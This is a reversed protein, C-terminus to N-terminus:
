SASPRTLSEGCHGVAGSRHLRRASTECGKGSEQCAARLRSLPQTTLGSPRAYGLSGLRATDFCASGLPEYSRRALDRRGPRSLSACPVHLAPRRVLGVLAMGDTDSGVSWADRTPDVARVGRANMHRRTWTTTHVRPRSGGGVGQDLSLSRPRVPDGPRGGIDEARDGAKPSGVCGHRMRSADIRTMGYTYRILVTSLALPDGRVATGDGTAPESVGSAGSATGGPGWFSVCFCTSSRSAIAGTGLGGLWM